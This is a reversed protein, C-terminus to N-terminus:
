FRTRQTVAKRLPNPSISIRQSGTDQFDLNVNEEWCGSTRHMAPEAPRNTQKKLRELKLSQYTNYTLQNNWKKPQTSFM